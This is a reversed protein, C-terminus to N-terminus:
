LILHWHRHCDKLVKPTWGWGEELLGIQLQYLRGKKHPIIQLEAEVSEGPALDSPLPAVMAHGPKPDRNLDVWRGHIVLGDSAVLPSPGENKVRVRATVPQAVKLFFPLRSLLKVSCHPDQRTIPVPQDERAKRWQESIFPLLEKDSENRYGSGHGGEKSIVGYRGAYIKQWGQHINHHLKVPHRKWRTDHILAIRAPFPEELNHDQLVLLSVERGQRILERGANVLIRGGECFGGLILPGEPQIRSIEDLYVSTIRQYDRLKKHQVSRLSRFGIVTFETRLNRAIVEFEKVSNACWFFKPKDPLAGADVRAYSHEFPPRGPWSSLFRLLKRKVRPPFDPGSRTTSTTDQRRREVEKALASVTANEYFIFGALSIRFEKEVAALLSTASLSDGGQDFFDLGPDIEELHLAKQWLVVLARETDSLDDTRTEGPPALEALAFRQLKGNQNRPLEPLRLFRKPLKYDALVQALRSRIEPDPLEAGNRLVLALGVEEGLTPHPFGFSAAEAVEDWTMVIRDIESPSVKQGGRNIVERARGTLFLYGDEDLHGLDGTFFFGDDWLDKNEENEEYGRFLGPSRVWVQNHHRIEIDCDVPLGVSGVKQPAPPLPNSTLLGATESMGYMEIVPVGLRERAEEFLAPSLPASVSRILRLHHDPRAPAAHLLSQLIAPAAQLWTPQQTQLLDLIAGPSGPEAFVVSGGSVLPVLFLDVLGGIHSMPLLNLARDAETLSLSKIIAHVSHLLNEHSLPVVKPKGTSGSTLLILADREPAGTAPDGEWGLTRHDQRVTVLSPVPLDAPAKDDVVVTQIGLQTIRAVLEASTLAPDLPVCTTQRMVVTSVLGSLLRDRVLVGVRGCFQPTRAPDLADRVQDFNWTSGDSQVLAAKEGRGESPALCASLTINPHEM